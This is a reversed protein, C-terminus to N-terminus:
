RALGLLTLRALATLQPVVQQLALQDVLVGLETELELALVLAVVPWQELALGAAHEYTAEKEEPAGEKEGQLEPQTPNDDAHQPMPPNGCSPFRKSVAPSECHWSLLAGLSPM